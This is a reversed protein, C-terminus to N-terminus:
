RSPDTLRGSHTFPLWDFKAALFQIQACWKLRSSSLAWLLIMNSFWHDWSKSINRICVRSWFLLHIAFWVGFLGFRDLVTNRVLASKLLVFNQERFRFQVLHVGISIFNQVCKSLYTELTEVIKLILRIQSDVMSRFICVYNSNQQPTKLVFEFCSWLWLSCWYPMLLSGLLIDWGGVFGLLMRFVHVRHNKEFEWSFPLSSSLFVLSWFIWCSFLSLNFGGSLQPSYWRSKRSNFKCIVFV